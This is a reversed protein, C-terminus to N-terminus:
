CDLHTPPRAHQNGLNRTIPGFEEAENHDLGDREWAGTM